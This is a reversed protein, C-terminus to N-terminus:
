PRMGRKRPRVGEVGRRYRARARVRRRIRNGCRKAYRMRDDDNPGTGIIICSAQDARLSAFDKIIYAQGRDVLPNYYVPLGMMHSQGAIGM